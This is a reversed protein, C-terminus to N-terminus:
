ERSTVMARLANKQALISQLAIYNTAFQTPAPRLIERGGTFKRMLYLPHCHNYIYKTIMSAQSVTESVEELKGIDQFMLNVCHVACPSWYLRSFESELLRRAVVYNATNDTVVHVVNEHGVFLVVDRLLKFLADVTKSVHSADVLKLFITEKPCYVLFNILTRREVHRLIEAKELWIISLGTLEEVGLLIDPQHVASLSSPSQLLLVAGVVVVPCVIVCSLLRHATATAPPSPRVPALSTRINSLTPTPQPPHHPQSVALM